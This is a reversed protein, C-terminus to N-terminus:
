VLMTDVRKEGIIIDGSIGMTVETVPINANSIALAQEIIQTLSGCCPVEM